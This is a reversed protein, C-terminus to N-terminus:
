HQPRGTNVGVAELLQRLAEASERQEAERNDERNMEVLTQLRRGWRDARARDAEHIALGYQESAVTVAARVVTQWQDEPTDRNDTAMGM